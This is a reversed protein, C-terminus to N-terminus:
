DKKQCCFNIKGQYYLGFKKTLSTLFHRTLIFFHAFFGRWKSRWNLTDIQWPSDKTHVYCYCLTIFYWRHTHWSKSPGIVKSYNWGSNKFLGLLIIRFHTLGFHGCFCVNQLIYILRQLIKIKSSQYFIFNHDVIFNRIWINGKKSWALLLGLILPQCGYEHIYFLRSARITKGM